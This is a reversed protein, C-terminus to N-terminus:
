QDLQIYSVKEANVLALLAELGRREHAGSTGDVFITGKGPYFSIRETVKLQHDINAPRRVDIREQKLRTIAEVMKPRDGNRIEAIPLRDFRNM